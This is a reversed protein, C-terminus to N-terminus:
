RFDSRNTQVTAKMLQWLIDNVPTPVGLRRGEMAVAGNIADCETPAGRLIDQLMSSANDATREAVEKVHAEPDSYPLKIGRAGAVAACELAARTM